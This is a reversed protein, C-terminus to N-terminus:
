SMREWQPFWSDRFESECNVVNHVDFLGIRVNVGMEQVDVVHDDAVAIYKGIAVASEGVIDLLHVNRQNFDQTSLGRSVGKTKLLGDTAVDLTTQVQFVDANNHVYICHIPIRSTVASFLDRCDDFRPSYLDVSGDFFPSDSITAAPAGYRGEFVARASLWAVYHTKLIQIAKYYIELCDLDATVICVERRFKFAFWIATLVHVEDNVDIKGKKTKDKRGKRALEVGRRGIKTVVDNMLEGTSRADRTSVPISVARRTAFLRLYYAFAEFFPSDSNRDLDFFGAWSHQKIAAEVVHARNETTGAKDIWEYYASSTLIVNPFELGLGAIRFRTWVEESEPLIGVNADPFYIVREADSRAVANAM